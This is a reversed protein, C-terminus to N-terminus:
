SARGILRAASQHAIGSEASNYVLTFECEIKGENLIDQDLTVIVPEGNPWICGNAAGCSSVVSAGGTVLTASAIAVAACDGDAPQIISLDEVDFGLSNTATFMINNGAGALTVHFVAKETCDIGSGIECTDPLYRDLDFVGFFALAGVAALVVLIAWGYTMLFEMAAQGKRAKM